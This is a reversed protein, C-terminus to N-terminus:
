KTIYTELIFDRTKAAGVMWSITVKVDKLDPLPTTVLVEQSYSPYGPVPCKVLSSVSDFPAILLEEMKSQALSAATSSVGSEAATLYTTAIANLLPVLAATILVLALLLEILTFGSRRVRGM